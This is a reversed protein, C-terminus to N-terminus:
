RLGFLERSRTMVVFGGFLGFSMMKRLLTGVAAAEVDLGGDCEDVADDDASTGMMTVALGVVTVRLVVSDESRCSDDVSGTVTFPFWNSSERWANM